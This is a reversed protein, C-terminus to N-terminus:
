VFQEIKQLECEHFWEPKNNLEQLVVLAVKGYNSMSTDSVVVSMSPKVDIVLGPVECEGQCWWVLDGSKM